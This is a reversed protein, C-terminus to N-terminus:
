ALAALKTDIQALLARNYALAGASMAYNFTVANQVKVRLVILAARSM